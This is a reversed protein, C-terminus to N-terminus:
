EISELEARRVVSRILASPAFAAPPDADAYIKKTHSLEGDACSGSLRSYGSYVVFPTGRAKLKECVESTDGENLGHDLVVASLEPDEAAKLAVALRRAM